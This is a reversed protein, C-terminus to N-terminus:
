SQIPADRLRAVAVEQVLAKCTKCLAKMVGNYYLLYQGDGPHCKQHLYMPEDHAQHKCDPEQCGQEVMHDLQERYIM